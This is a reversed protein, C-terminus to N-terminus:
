TDLCYSSHALPPLSLSLSLVSVSVSVCMSASLTQMPLGNALEIQTTIGAASNYQLQENSCTGTWPRCYGISATLPKLWEAGVGVAAGM